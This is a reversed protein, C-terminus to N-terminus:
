GKTAAAKQKKWRARQARAIAKRGAATITSRRRKAKVLPAENRAATPGHGNLLGLTTRIAAAASEHFALLQTLHATTPPFAM